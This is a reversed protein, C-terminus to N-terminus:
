HKYFRLGKLCRPSNTPHTLTAMYPNTCTSKLRTTRGHSNLKSGGIKTKNQYLKNFGQQM